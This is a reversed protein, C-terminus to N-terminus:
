QESVISLLEVEFILTSGAPIPSRPDARDGYGLKSPIHLRIKGGENIKTLGNGFGPIVGQLPFEAPTGRRYSSDFVTGDILRGEYNVEVTDEMTPFKGSGESLIEYHLGSEDKVVGDKSALAAFHAAEAARSQELEAASREEARGQLYAQLGPMLAEADEESHIAGENLAFKIGEALETKEEETFGLEEFGANLAFFYGFLKPMSM